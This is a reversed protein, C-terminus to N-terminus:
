IMSSDPLFFTVHNVYLTSLQVSTNIPIENSILSADPMLPPFPGGKRAGYEQVAALVRADPHLPALAKCIMGFYYVM